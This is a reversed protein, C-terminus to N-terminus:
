RLYFLSLRPLRASALTARDLYQTELMAIQPGTMKGRWPRLHSELDRRAALAQEESQSARAM